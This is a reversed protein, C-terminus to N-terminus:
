GNAGATAPPYDQEGAAADGAGTQDEARDDPRDDPQDDPQDDLGAQQEAVFDAVADDLSRRCADYIGERVVAILEDFREHNLELDLRLKAPPLVISPLVVQDDEPPTGRRRGFSEVRREAVM